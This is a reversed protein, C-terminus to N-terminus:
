PQHNPNKVVSVGNIKPESLDICIRPDRTLNIWVDFSLIVRLPNYKEILDATRYIYDTHTMM